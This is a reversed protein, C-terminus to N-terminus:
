RTAKEGLSWDKLPAGYNPSKYKIKGAIVKSYNSTTSRCSRKELSKVNHSSRWVHNIMSAEKGEIKRGLSSEVARVMDGACKFRPALKALLAKEANSIATM